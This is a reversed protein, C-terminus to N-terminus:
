QRFGVPSASTMPPVIPPDIPAASPAANRSKFLTQVNSLRNIRVSIPDPTPADVSKM